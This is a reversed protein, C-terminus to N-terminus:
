NGIGEVTVLHSLQVLHEDGVGPCGSVLLLFDEVHGSTQRAEIYAILASGTIHECNILKLQCLRPGHLSSQAFPVDTM